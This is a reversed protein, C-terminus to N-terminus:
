ANGIVYKLSVRKGRCGDQNRHPDNRLEITAGSWEGYGQIGGSKASVPFALLPSAPVAPTVVFDAASCVAPDTVPPGGPPAIQTIVVNVREVGVPVDNPNGFTGSLTVPKGMEFTISPPGSVYVDIGGVSSVTTGSGSGSGSTTYYAYAMGGSAVILATASTVVTSRRM